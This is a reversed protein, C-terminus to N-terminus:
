DCLSRCPDSLEFSGKIWERVWVLSLEGRLPLVLVPVSGEGRDTERKPTGPALSSGLLGGEDGVGIELLCRCSSEGGERLPVGLSSKKNETM